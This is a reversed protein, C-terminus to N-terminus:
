EKLVKITKTEGSFTRLTLFYMGKPADINFSVFDTSQFQQTLIKQGLSNVLTATINTKMGGLDIYINDNTPNPYLSILNENLESVSFPFCPTILNSLEGLTYLRVNDLVLETCTVCIHGWNTFKITHNAAVAQFIVLYRTGIGTGVPTHQNRLMTDGFGVNVAFLGPKTMYQEGGAWFELVYTDGPILGSATQEISVGIAGGFAPDPNFPFGQPPGSVTCDDMILCSTDNVTNSCANCYFNGMYVANTGEQIM